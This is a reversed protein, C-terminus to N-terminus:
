IEFLLQQALLPLVADAAEKPVFLMYRARPEASIGRLVDSRRSIEEVQLRGGARDVVLIPHPADAAPAVYYAYAVSATRDSVVYSEPPSFGAAAVRALVAQRLDEALPGNLRLGRFLRRHLFRRALDALVPDPASTWAKIAALVDVEDAALYQALTVPGALFPEVSAPVSGLAGAGGSRYLWVARHLLRDLIAEISRTAKHFYVNWYMFYRALLFAEIASQGKATVAVRLGRPGECLTLTSLLRDLDYNGYPVGCMLSDRLLYDMRDVDLQSSLLDQLYGPGSWRHTVLAAIQGPWAPNRERLHRHIATEPGTIIREVWAEHDTGMVKEFLHSFPGHGVDHLLAACCMMVHDERSLAVLGREELHRLVRDMLHYVGLSHAFRTHEAGPYSIFSTGLQRIRRLRQFEPSDILALVTPDQVSIDGHVPDRFVYEKLRAGEKGSM